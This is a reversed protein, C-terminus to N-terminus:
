LSNPNVKVGLSVRSSRQIHVDQPDTSSAWSVFWLCGKWPSCSLQHLLCVSSLSPVLLLSSLLSGVWATSFYNKKQIHWNRFTRIKTGTCTFLPIVSIAHCFTVKKKRRGFVKRFHYFLKSQIKKYLYSIAQGMHMIHAAHKLLSVRTSLSSCSTYFGKTKKSLVHWIGVFLSM